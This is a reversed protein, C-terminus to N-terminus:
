SSSSCFPTRREPVFKGKHYLVSFARLKEDLLLVIQDLPTWSMVAFDLFLFCGEIRIECRASPYERRFLTQIDEMLDWILQTPPVPRVYAEFNTFLRAVLGSFYPPDPAFHNAESLTSSRSWDSSRIWTFHRPGTSLLWVPFLTGPGVTRRREPQKNTWILSVANRLDMFIMRNVSRGHVFTHLHEKTVVDAVVLHCPEDPVPSIEVDLVVYRRQSEICTEPALEQCPYTCRMTTGKIRDYLKVSRIASPTDSGASGHASTFVWGGLTAGMICPHSSLTQGRKKLAAQVTAISTGAGWINKDTEGVMDRTSVERTVVTRNLFSSWGGGVLVVSESSKMDYCNSPKKSEVADSLISVLVYLVCASFMVSALAVKAQLHLAVGLTLASYLTLLGRGIVVHWQKLPARSLVALPMLAFAVVVAACRVTSDETRSFMAHASSVYAILMGSLQFTAHVIKRFMYSVDEAYRMFVASFLFVSLASLSETLFSM